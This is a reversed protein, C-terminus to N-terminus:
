AQSKNSLERQAERYFFDLSSVRNPAFAERKEGRREVKKLQHKQQISEDMEM